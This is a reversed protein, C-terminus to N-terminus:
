EEKKVAMKIQVQPRFSTGAQAYASELIIMNGSATTTLIYPGAIVLNCGSMDEEEQFVTEVKETEINVKVISKGQTSVFEKEGIYFGHQNLGNFPFQRQTVTIEQTDFETCLNRTIFQIQHGNPMMILANSIDENFEAGDNLKQIQQTTLNFLYVNTKAQIIIATSFQLYSADALSCDFPKKLEIEESELTELDVKFVSHQNIEYFYGEAVAMPVSSFAHLDREKFVSQNSFMIKSIKNQNRVVLFAPSIVDTFSPGTGNTKAAAVKNIPGTPKPKPPQKFSIELSPRHKAATKALDSELIHVLGQLDTTVLYQGACVIACSSLNTNAYVLENSPYSRIGDSSTALFTDPGLGIGSQASLQYDSPSSKSTYSLTDYETKFGSEYFQITSANKLLLIASSVDKEFPDPNLNQYELKELYFVFIQRLNQVILAQDFQIFSPNQFEAPFEKEFTLEETEQTDLNVRFIHDIYLEYFFNQHVAMPAHPADHLELEFEIKQNAFIIKTLKNGQRVLIKGGPLIRTWSVGTSKLQISAALQM